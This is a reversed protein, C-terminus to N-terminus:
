VLLGTETINCCTKVFMKDTFCISLFSTLCAAENQLVKQNEWVRRRQKKFAEAIPLVSSELCTEWELEGSRQWGFMKFFVKLQIKMHERQKCPTLWMKLDSQAKISEMYNQSSELSLYFSQRQPNSSPLFIYPLWCFFVQTIAKSTCTKSPTCAKEDNDWPSM